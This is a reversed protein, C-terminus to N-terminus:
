KKILDLFGNENYDINFQKTKIWNPLKGDLQITIDILKGVSRIDIGNLWNNVEILFEEKKTYFSKRFEHEYTINEFIVLLDVQTSNRVINYLETKILEFNPQLSKM